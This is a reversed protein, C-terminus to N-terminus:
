LIQIGKQDKEITQKKEQSKTMQEQRMANRKLFDTDSM